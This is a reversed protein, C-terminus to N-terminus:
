APVVLQVPTAPAASPTQAIMEKLYAVRSRHNDKQKGSCPFAIKLGTVKGRADYEGEAIIKLPSGDAKEVLYVGPQVQNLLTVEEDTDVDSLVPQGCWYIPYAALVRNQYGNLHYVGPMPAPDLEQKKAAESAKAAITADAFKEADRATRQATALELADEFSTGDAQEARIDAMTLGLALLEKRQAVTFANPSKPM